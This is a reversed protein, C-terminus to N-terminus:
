LVPPVTPIPVVLGCNVKCIPPLVFGSIPTPILEEPSIFAVPITVADVNEPLTIPFTM